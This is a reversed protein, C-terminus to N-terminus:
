VWPKSRSSVPYSGTTACAFTTGEGGVEYVLTDEGHEKSVKCRSALRMDNLKAHLQYIQRSLEAVQRAHEAEIGLVYRAVWLAIFFLAIIAAIM